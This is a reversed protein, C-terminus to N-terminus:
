NGLIYLIKEGCEDNSYFRHASFHATKSDNSQETGVVFFLSWYTRTQLDTQYNFMVGNRQFIPALGVGCFSVNFGQLDIV